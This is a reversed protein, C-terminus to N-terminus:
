EGKKKKLNQIYRSIDEDKVEDLEKLAKKRNADKIRNICTLATDMDGLLVDKSSIIRTVSAMQPSDLYGSLAMLDLTMHSQIIETIAAYAKKGFETSMEDPKLQEYIQGFLDPSFFLICLLEEEAKSALLNGRKEPNGVDGKGSNKDLEQRIEKNKERSKYNKEAKSIEALIATKTIGLSDALEGAYIDREVASSLSALVSVAQKMYEAKQDPLNMDYGAKIDMLKYEIQNHCSDILRKFEDAGYAKIFEDPDKGGTIRLIKVKIGTESFIRMAKETANRGATDADYCVVVEGAYRSILRAQDSTLATGLTAVANTFGAQWLAIVDMYGEALLFSDGADKANNLSFLNLGKDFVPTLPSNLYKPKDDNLVRGGFGIVNGRVDVIPFMVRNRFYDYYRGDRSRSCLGAEKIQEYAFGKSVLHDVLANWSDKAYGLAFHKITSAKLLRKKFYELAVRGDESLLNRYFYNAAERNIALTTERKKKYNIDQSKMEPMELGAKHALMTVADIYDLNEINKIFTIADGGTGCGFCYYSQTAPFVTFSGTKESHFPCLGVLNKGRRKIQVYESIIDEIEIRSRLQELFNEPLAM